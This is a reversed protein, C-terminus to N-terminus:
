QDGGEKAKKTDPFLKLALERVKKQDETIEKLEMRDKANLKQLKEEDKLNELEPHKKDFAKTREHVDQEEAKLAKLEALTPIGDRNPPPPGEPQGEPQQQGAKPPPGGLQEKLAELLRELRRGADRQLKLIEEQMRKEDAIEQGTLRKDDRGRLQNAKDRRADMLERAKEMAGAAKRLIHAFVLAGELQKELSRTDQAVGGQRFDRLTVLSGVLDETWKPPDGKVVLQHIRVMEGIAEDQREKLVKIKDAIKALKERALENEVRDNAKELQEAGDDLRALANKQQEEPDEGEAMKRTAERMARSARRLKDAAEPANLRSLRKAMRRAEEELKQQEEALAKLDKQLQAQDGGNEAAKKKVEQVKKKLRDMKDALEDLKKQAEKQKKSLRDLQEERPQELAKAIKEMTGAAERQMKEVNNIQPGQPGKKKLEDAAAKMQDDPPTKNSRKIAELMRQVRDPMAKKSVDWGHNKPDDPNYKMGAKNFEEEVKKQLDERLKHAEEKLRDQRDALKELERKRVAADLPKDELERLEKALQEQERKIQRARGQMEELTVFPTLDDLLNKLAEKVEEQQARANTLDKNEKGKPQREGEAGQEAQRAKELLEDIKKLQDDALQKLTKAVTEVKDNVASRPLQNDELLRRIQDVDRQLGEQPDKGIQEQIRKQESRADILKKEDEADLKGDTKLKEEVETVLKLAKKQIEDARVLKERVERMAKQVVEKMESPAVIEFELPSSRGPEKGPTVNDFDDAVARVVLTEGVDLKLGKLSWRLDKIEVLKPRLRFQPNRTAIPLGALGAFVVQIKRDTLLHDYLPVPRWNDGIFKGQKNKRRYELYLSKVAYVEDSASAELTVTARATVANSRPALSLCELKVPDPAPDRKIQITYIRRQEVEEDKWRLHYKGSVRPKFRLTYTKGDDALKAPLIEPRKKPASPLEMWVKVVRRDMVGRMSVETGLVGGIRDYGSQLTEPPLDTYGPYQVIIQESAVDPPQVITVTHWQGPRSPSVADNARVRFRVEGYMGGLDLEASFTGTKSDKDYDIAPSLTQLAPDEFEITANEPMVGHVTGEIRFRERSGAGIKSVYEVDVQTWTRENFPATLRVLATWALSPQGFYLYMGFIACILFILLAPSLGRSNVAKKFDCGQAQRMAQQVAERRLAPSDSVQAEAPRELFQVTSALSDNLAPYHAEVRLALSLDDTKGWLPQILYYAAVLGAGALISVLLCARVLSPLQVSYDIFGGMAACGVLIALLWCGGRLSVVFRLRRRLAYLRQQLPNM